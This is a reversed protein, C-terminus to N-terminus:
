LDQCEHRVVLWNRFFLQRFDAVAVSLCNQPLQDSQTQHVDLTRALTSGIDRITRAFSKKLEKSQAGQFVQRLRVYEAEFLEAHQEPTNSRNRDLIRAFCVIPTRHFCNPTMLLSPEM